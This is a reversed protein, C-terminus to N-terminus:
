NVKGEKWAPLLLAGLGGISALVERRTAMTGDGSAGATMLPETNKRLRAVVSISPRNTKKAISKILNYVARWRRAWLNQRHPKWRVM